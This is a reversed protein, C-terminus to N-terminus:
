YFNGWRVADTVGFGKCGRPELSYFTTPNCQPQAEADTGLVDFLTCFILMISSVLIIKLVSSLGTIM